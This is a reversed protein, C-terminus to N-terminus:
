QSSLSDPWDALTVSLDQTSGNRKITVAVTDGSKKTDLYSSIEEVKSVKRGDVALIVDGGTPVGSNSQGHDTGKIGAKEAPSGSVVSVVYVGEAPVGLERALNDTLQTGSIGLWPHTVKKGSIMDQLSAKATSIPVAFGIGVNAGVPSEISSNIGIVEGRSNILPGGSNGPNIAADTQIMDRISRGGSGTPYTRGLSSIVGVTLTRQLGFPNGIAIALQGVKLASSDGLPAVTLQSKDVDIKVVALDNGPDTGLVKGTVTTGNALTVDLQTAGDVVHNNTLIRGQDDVIVGSGTGQQPQNPIPLQGRPNNRAATTSTINVVSPSLRQYIGVITDEDLISAQGATASSEASAIQPVLAPAPQVRLYGVVTAAGVIMAILVIVFNKLISAM